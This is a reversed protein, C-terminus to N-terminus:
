LKGSKENLNSNATFKCSWSQEQHKMKHHEVKKLWTLIKGEGKSIGTIICGYHCGKINLIASDSLNMSMMLLGHCRNCINSQFKFGKNLFYWYHYIDFEKSTSTKNVDIGESADIRHFYIMKINNM